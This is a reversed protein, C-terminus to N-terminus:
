WIIIIFSPFITHQHKFSKKLQHAEEITSVKNHLSDKYDRILEAYKAKDLKDLFERALAAVILVTEKCVKLANLNM